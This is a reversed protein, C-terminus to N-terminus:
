KDLSRVWDPLRSDEPLEYRSGDAYLNRHEDLTVRALERVPRGEREELFYLEWTREGPEWQMSATRGKWRIDTRGLEELLPAAEAAPIDVSAGSKQLELVSIVSVNELGGDILRAFPHPTMMLWAAGLVAALLVGLWVLLLRRKMNVHMPM